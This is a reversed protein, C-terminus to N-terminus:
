VRSLSWKWALTLNWLYNCIGQKRSLTKYFHGRSMTQCSSSSFSEVFVSVRSILSITDDWLVAHFIGAKFNEGARQTHTHCARTHTHTHTHRAHLQKSTRGWTDKDASLSTHDLDARLSRDARNERNSYIGTHSETRTHTPPIDKERDWTDLSESNRSTLLRPNKWDEAIEKVIDFFRAWFRRMNRQLSGRNQFLLAAPINVVEELEFGLLAHHHIARTRRACKDLEWFFCFQLLFYALWM